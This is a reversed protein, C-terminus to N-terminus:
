EAVVLRGTRTGTATAARITYTGQPLHSVDLTLSTSRMVERGAMDYLRVDVGQLGEPLGIRVTGSAPNPYMTLPETDAVQQIGVEGSLPNFVVGESWEGRKTIGFRCVPRVYAVYQSDVNLNLMKAVPEMCTIITGSDPETGVPGYSVEWRSNNASTDWEAMVLSGYAGTIHLGSVAPCTDGPLEIIPFVQMVGNTIFEHWENNYDIYWFHNMPYQEELCGEPVSGTQMCGYKFLVSVEAHNGYFYEYNGSITYLNNDDFFRMSMSVIFSDGVTIASDFELQLLPVYRLTNSYDSIGGYNMNWCGTYEMYKDLNSLRITGSVIPQMQNKARYIKLDEKWENLASSDIIGERIFDNLCAYQVMVALGAISQHNPNYFCAAVEKKAFGYEDFNIFPLHFINRDCNLNYRPMISDEPYQHLYRQDFEALTDIQANAIPQISFLGM